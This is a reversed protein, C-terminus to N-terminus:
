TYFCIWLTKSIFQDCIPLSLFANTNVILMKTQVLPNFITHDVITSFVSLPTHQFLFYSNRRERVVMAYYFLM